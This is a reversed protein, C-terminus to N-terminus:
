RSIRYNDRSRQGLGVGELRLALSITYTFQCSYQAAQWAEAEAHWPILIALSVQGHLPVGTSTSEKLSYQCRPFTNKPSQASNQCCLTPIFVGFTHTNTLRPHALTQLLKSGHPLSICCLQFQSLQSGEGGGRGERFRSEEKLERLELPQSNRNWFNSADGTDGGVYSSGVLQWLGKHKPIRALRRGEAKYLVCKGRHRSTNRDYM